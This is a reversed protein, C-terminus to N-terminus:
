LIVIWDTNKHMKGRHMGRRSRVTMVMMKDKHEDNGAKVKIAEFCIGFPYVALNQGKISPIM